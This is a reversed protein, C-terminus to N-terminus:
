RTKSCKMAPGALVKRFDLYGPDPPNGSSGTRSGVLTPTRTTSASRHPLSHARQFVWASALSRWLPRGSLSGAQLGPLSLPPCPQRCPDSVLPPRATEGQKGTKQQVTPHSDSLLASPPLLGPM